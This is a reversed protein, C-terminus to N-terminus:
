LVTGQAYRAFHAAPVQVFLAEAEVAVPGDPVDLRGRGRVAVKRGEHSVLEASLHLQSGVQVPRRFQVQLSATVARARLLWNVAGLLEDMACALLGGHAINPAGQHQPALGCRGVIGAGDQAVWLRVGLGGQEM